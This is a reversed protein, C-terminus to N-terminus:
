AGDDVPLRVTVTTGRGVVSEFAISGGHAEVISKCISLGLGSGGEGRTRSQDARYFREGLHVLHDPAIGIGTDAITVRVLDDERSASVCVSGDAPTYRAANDLLNAFLRTVEDENGLVCLATDPVDIRAPCATRRLGSAARQLAERVPLAIRDHGLRDADARALMLLDQVLRSMADAARNM